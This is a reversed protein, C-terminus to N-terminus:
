AGADTVTIAFNSRLRDSKIMFHSKDESRAIVVDADLGLMERLQAFARRRLQKESWGERTLRQTNVMSVYLRANTQPRGRGENKEFPVSTLSVNVINSM